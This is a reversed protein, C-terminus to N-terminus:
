SVEQLASQPPRHPDLIGDPMAVSRHRRDRAASDLSVLAAVYLPWFIGNYILLTNEDLDYLLILVILVLPFAISAIRGARWLPWLQRWAGLWSVAFLALGALGLELCIELFGNHAHEVIFHVATNIQLSPGSAGRWFADYGYGFFPRQAVFHAVQPWIATRGSFTADRGLLRMLQPLFFAAAAVAAALVAPAAVALLVRSRTSSRRAYWLVSWLILIAAEIAWAGRSGSMVLITLFLALAALRAPTLRSGFLVVASALVMIRGCANKQTFVGQWDAAHGPTHDLGIAPACVVLAITALAVAVMALRLIAFQRETPFRSAFYIGFLGALAFPISRRATLLPDLSWATSAVALLALLAIAPLAASHRVLLRPRRLVLFLILVDVLAQSLIGGLTTLSSPASGTIEFAATPAIGPISGQMSFFAFLAACALDELPIQPIFHPHPAALRHPTM